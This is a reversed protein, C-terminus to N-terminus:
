LPEVLFTLTYNRTEMSEKVSPKPAVAELSVKLISFTVTPSDTGIKLTEEDTGYKLRVEAVLRGAWVCMAEIPCRSDEVIKNLTISLGSIIKTEGVKLSGTSEEEEIISTDPCRAFECNPGTRGVASGDPCILADMTCAIPENGMKEHPLLFYGLAALVMLGILVYQTKM